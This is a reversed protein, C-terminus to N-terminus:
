LLSRVIFYRCGYFLRFLTYCRSTRGNIEFSIRCATIDRERHMCRYKLDGSQVNLTDAYKRMLLDGNRLIFYEIARIFYTVVGQLQGKTVKFWRLGYIMTRTRFREVLHWTFSCIKGNLFGFNVKTRDRRIQMLNQPRRCRALKTQCM